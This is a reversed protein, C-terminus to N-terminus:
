KKKSKYPVKLGEERWLSQIKKRNVVFGQRTLYWHAKRLGWRPFQASFARLKSRLLEDKTPMLSIRRRRQVIRVLLRALL